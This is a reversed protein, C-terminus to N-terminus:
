AASDHDSSVSDSSADASGGKTAFDYDSDFPEDSSDTAYPLTHFTDQSIYGRLIVDLADDSNLEEEQHQDDVGEHTGRGGAKFEVANKPSINATQLIQEEEQFSDDSLHVAYSDSGEGRAAEVLVDETARPKRQKKSASKLYVAEIYADNLSESSSWDSPVYDPGANLARTLKGVVKNAREREKQRDVSDASDGLPDEIHSQGPPPKDLFDDEEELNPTASLPPQKNDEEAGELSLFIDDDDSSFEDSLTVRNPADAPAPAPGDFDDEEELNPTASPPRKRDEKPADFYL